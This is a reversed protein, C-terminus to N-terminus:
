KQYEVIDDPPCSSIVLLEVIERTENALYHVEKLGSKFIIYDGSCATRKEENVYVTPTGSLIVYVEDKKTHSHPSSTRHGPRLEEHILSFASVGTGDTLSRALTFLEGTRGSQVQTPPIGRINGFM